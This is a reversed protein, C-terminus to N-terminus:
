NVTLNNLKEQALTFDPQLALVKQYCAIAQPIEGLQELTYGCNYWCAYNDPQLQSLKQWCALSESWRQLSFLTTGRANWIQADEPQLELAKEFSELAEELRGLQSLAGGRNHWASVCNPDLQLCEDWSAIAGEWDAIQVQQLGKQLWAEATTPQAQEDIQNQTAQFQEILAKIILEPDYSELGLQQAIIQGLSSDQQLRAFLEELTLTQVSNDVTPSSSPQATAAPTADPGDYEWIVQEIGLTYLRRGAHYASEGILHLQPINQALEGLRLMRSALLQNPAAKKVLTEGFQEIWTAWLRPKGREALKEFFRLVKGEHWGYGIGEMLQMFLFEYETDTLPASIERAQRQSHILPTSTGGFLGGFFRKLWQWIRGILGQM